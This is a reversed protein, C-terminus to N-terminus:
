DSDVLILFPCNSSFLPYIVVLGRFVVEKEKRATSLINIILM